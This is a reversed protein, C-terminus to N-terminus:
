IQSHLNLDKWSFGPLKPDAHRVVTCHFHRQSFFDVICFLFWYTCHFVIKSPQKEQKKISEILKDVHVLFTYAPIHRSEPIKFRSFDTDRVDVVIVSEPDKDMWDALEYPEVLQVRRVTSDSM